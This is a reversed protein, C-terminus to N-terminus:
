SLFFKFTLKTISQSLVSDFRHKLQLTTHQIRLIHSVLSIFCDYLDKEDFEKFLDM